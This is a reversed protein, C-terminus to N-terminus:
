LGSRVFLANVQPRGALNGLPHQRTFGVPDASFGRLDGVNDGDPVQYGVYGYRRFLDLSDRWRANFQPTLEILAYDVHGAAFSPEFVRLADSENGEIDAKFLRVRDGAPVVPTASDIFGRVASLCRTRNLVANSELLALNEPNAEVALVPHGTRLALMTYWGVHAGVDVLWGGPEALVALAVATEFGEWMGYATVARSVDDDGSCYGVTDRYAAADYVDLDFAPLDITPNGHDPNCDAAAFSVHVRRKDHSDHGAGCREVRGSSLVAAAEAAWDTM